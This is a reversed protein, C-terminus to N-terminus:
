APSGDGSGGEPEVMMVRAGLDALLKGAFGGAVSSTLDVVLVGELAAAAM